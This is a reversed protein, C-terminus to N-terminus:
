FWLVQGEDVVVEEEVDLVAVVLFLWDFWLVEYYLESSRHSCQLRM